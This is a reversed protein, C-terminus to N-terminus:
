IRIIETSYLFWYFELFDSSVEQFWNRTVMSRYPTAYGQQLFGDGGSFIVQVLLKMIGGVLDTYIIIHIHIYLLIYM